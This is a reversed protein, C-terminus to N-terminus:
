AKDYYMSVSLTTPSTTRVNRSLLDYLKLCVKCGVLDLLLDSDSSSGGDGDRHVEVDNAFYTEGRHYHSRVSM